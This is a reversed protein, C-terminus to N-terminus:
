DQCSSLLWARPEFGCAAAFAFLPNGRLVLSVLNACAALHKIEVVDILENNGLNLVRLANPLKYSAGFLSAIANHSVNVHTLRACLSIDGLTECANHSLDLTELCRQADLGEVNSVCNHALSLHALRICGGLGAIAMLSNHSADLTTLNVNQSLDLRVLRNSSVNLSELAPLHELGNLKLLANSSLNLARVHRTLHPLYRLDPLARLTRFSWDLAAQETRTHRPPHRSAHSPGPGPAGGGAAVETM